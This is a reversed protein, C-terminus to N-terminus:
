CSRPSKGSFVERRLRERLPIFRPSEGAKATHGSRMSSDPSTRVHRSVVRKARLALVLIAFVIQPNAHSAHILGLRQLGTTGDGGADEIAWTAVRHLVSHFTASHTPCPDAGVGHDVRAGGDGRPVPIFREIMTSRGLDM